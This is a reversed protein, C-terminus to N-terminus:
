VHTQRRSRNPLPRCAHLSRRNQTSPHSSRFRGIPAIASSSRLRMMSRTRAQMRRAL